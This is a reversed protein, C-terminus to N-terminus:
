FLDQTKSQIESLNIEKRSPMSAVARRTTRADVLLIRANTGADVKANDVTSVMAADKDTTLEEVADEDVVQPCLKRPVTASISNESRTELQGSRRHDDGAHDRISHKAATPSALM